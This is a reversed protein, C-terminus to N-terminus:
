AGYRKAMNIIDRYSDKRGAIRVVLVLLRDDKVTYIIRHRGARIRYIVPSKKGANIKECKLPRPNSALADIVRGVRRREAPQLRKIHKKPKDEIEIHYEM